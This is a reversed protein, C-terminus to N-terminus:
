VQFVESFLGRNRIPSSPQYIRSGGTVHPVLLRRKPPSPPDKGSSRLPNTCTGTPTWLRGLVVSLGHEKPALSTYPGGDDLRGFEKVARGPRVQLATSATQICPATCSFCFCFPPNVHRLVILVWYQGRPFRVLRHRTLWDGSACPVDGCRWLRRIRCM